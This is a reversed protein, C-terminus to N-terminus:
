LLNFNYSNCLNLLIEMKVFKLSNQFPVLTDIIDDIVCACKIVYCVSLMQIDVCEVCKNSYCKYFIVIIVDM